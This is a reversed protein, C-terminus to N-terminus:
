QFINMLRVALDNLIARAKSIKDTLENIKTENM